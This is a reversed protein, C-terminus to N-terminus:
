HFIGCNGGQPRPFIVFCWFWNFLPTWKPKILKHFVFFIQAQWWMSKNKFFWFFIMFLLQLEQKTKNFKMCCNVYWCYWFLNHFYKSARIKLTNVWVNEWSIIRPWGRISGGNESLLTTFNIAKTNWTTFKITSMTSITTTIRKVHKIINNQKGRDTYINSLKAYCFRYM